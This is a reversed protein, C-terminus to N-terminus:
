DGAAWKDSPNTGERPQIKRPKGDRTWESSKQDQVSNSDMNVVPEPVVKPAKPEPVSSDIELAKKEPEKVEYEADIVESDQAEQPKRPPRPLRSIVKITVEHSTHLERRLSFTGPQTRELFWAGAQWKDAPANRVKDLFFEAAECVAKKLREAFEPRAKMHAYVTQINWGVGAAALKPPMGKRISKEVKDGKAGSWRQARKRPVTFDEISQTEVGQLAALGELIDDAEKTLEKSTTGKKKPIKSPSSKKPPNPEKEMSGKYEKRDKM